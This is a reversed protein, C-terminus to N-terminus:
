KGLQAGPQLPTTGSGQGGPFTEISRFFNQAGPENSSKPGDPEGGSCMDAGLDVPISQAAYGAQPMGSVNDGVIRADRSAPVMGIGDNPRQGAWPQFEAADATLRAVQRTSLNLDGPTLVKQEEDLTNAPPAGPMSGGVYSDLSKQNPKSKM